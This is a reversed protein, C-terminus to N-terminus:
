LSPLAVQNLQGLLLDTDRLRLRLSHAAISHAAGLVDEDACQLEQESHSERGCVPEGEEEQEGEERWPGKILPGWHRMDIKLFPM